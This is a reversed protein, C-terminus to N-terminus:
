RKVPGRDREAGMAAAKMLGVIGLWEPSNAAQDAVMARWRNEKIQHRAWEPTIELSGDESLWRGERREACVAQDTGACRVLLCGDDASLRLLDTVAYEDHLNAEAVAQYRGNEVKWIELLM